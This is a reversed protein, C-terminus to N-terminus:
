MPCVSPTGLEGEYVCMSPEILSLLEVSDHCLLKLRLSRQPGNWCSRGDKWYFFIDGNTMENQENVHVNYNLNDIAEGDKNM